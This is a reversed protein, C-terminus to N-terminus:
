YSSNRDENYRGYINDVYPDIDDDHDWNWDNRRRDKDFIRDDNRLREKRRHQDQLKRLARSRRSAFDQSDDFEDFENYYGNQPRM